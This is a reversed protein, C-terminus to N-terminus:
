KAIRWFKWWVKSKGKEPTKKTFKNILEQQQKSANEEVMKSFAERIRVGQENSFVTERTRYKWVQTIPDAYCLTSHWLEVRTPKSEVTYTSIVWDEPTDRMSICIADATQEMFSFKNM